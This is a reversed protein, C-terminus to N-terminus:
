HTALYQIETSNLTRNYIRIEDINGRFYDNYTGSSSNQYGITIPKNNAITSFVISFSSVLQGNLYYSLVQTSSEYTTIFNYWKGTTVIGAANPYTNSNFQNNTQYNIIQSTLNHNPNWIGLTWGDSGIDDHKSIIMSANYTTALTDLYFWTSFSYSATFNLNSNPTNVIINKNTGFKYASNSVGFRDTTLTAGNVTGNNGNSSSDIANGTFPYYAILGSTLTSPPSILSNLIALLNNYQITLANILTTFNLISANITTIQASISAINANAALMQTNLTAIQTNATDIRLSLNTLKSNIGLLATKVSDMSKSLTIVNSNTSTLNNNTIALATALSDRSKQLAALSSNLASQLASVSNTLTQIQPAYDVQKQCSSITFALTFAFLAVKLFTTIKKM